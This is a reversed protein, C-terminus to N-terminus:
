IIDAGNVIDKNLVGKIFYKEGDEIYIIDGICDNISNEWKQVNCTFYDVKEMIKSLKFRRESYRLSHNNIIEKFKNWVESGRLISGDQLTIERNFFVTQQEYSDILRMRKQVKKFELSNVDEEFFKNINLHDSSKDNKYTEIDKLVYNYFQEFNKNDLIDQMKTNSLVLDKNLRFDGRYITSAKDKNFFYAKCNSKKCSRNIRGLFQEESDLVSIDKFGIDMDIDVGAEVVQTAVLLVKKKTEKVNSIIRKRDIKSTDGTLAYIDIDNNNKYHELAKSYFEKASDKRIFCVLVKDTYPEKSNLKSIVLDFLDTDINNSALLSYDITVRKKFLDNNFYKERNNILYICSDSKTFKNLRPLTASMIIFKINLINAYMELFIMIEQWISNKYAQIEDLIVVSNALQLLPFMNERSTGFLIDFVKVHSTLLIPYHVFQHFLVSKDYDTNTDISDNEGISKIATASNLITMFSELNSVTKLEESLSSWTQEVLTNFPFGYIYKNIDKCKTLINLALNISTITKGSGTPAELFFINKDLNNLLNKEAELCMESRLRNINNISFPTSDLEGELFKRHAEMGKYIAGNKFEDFFTEPNKFVGINDIKNDTSYDYTAYFDSTTLLSYLFRSYIFYIVEKRENKKYNYMYRATESTIIEKDDDLNIFIDKTYIDKYLKEYSSDYFTRKINDIFDNHIYHSLSNLYGHHKSIIYSNIVLINCLIKFYGETIIDEEYIAYLKEYYFDFYLSSSLPSHDSNEGKVNEYLKNKMKKIQFAKNIKGLDHCYITNLMAEKFFDIVVSPTEKNFMTKEINDLIRNLGKEKIIFETYKISLKSHEFLTELKNSENDSIHAYINDINKIYKKIDFLKTDKFYYM